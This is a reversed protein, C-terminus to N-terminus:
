DASRGALSTAAERARPTVDLPVCLLPARSPGMLQSGVLRCGRAAGLARGPSRPNVDTKPPVESFPSREAAM